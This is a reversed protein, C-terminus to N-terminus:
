QKCQSVKINDINKELTKKGVGKVLTFEQINKFCHKKRFVVIKQAKVAGIGKLTTLEKLNATNIDISGLLLSITLTLLTLLKM